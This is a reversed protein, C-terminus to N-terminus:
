DVDVWAGATEFRYGNRGGAIREPGLVRRLRSVLSAVNQAAGAPAEDGWLTEVITDVPVFSRRRTALLQLITTAKGAPLAVAEGARVDFRGMLRVRLEPTAVQDAGADSM